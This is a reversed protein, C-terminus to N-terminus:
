VLPYVPIMRGTHLTEDDLLEWEPSKLCLTGRMQEVRGALSVRAGPVLQRAVYPNFWIANIWGTQDAVVVTVLQKGTVTRHTDVSQVVGQITTTRGFLVSAIPQITSFDDHRRPYLRILDGVTRVGLL